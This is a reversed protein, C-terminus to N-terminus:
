KALLLLAGDRCRLKESVATSGDSGSVSSFRGVFFDRAIRSDISESPLAITVVFSVDEGEGGRGDCDAISGSAELGLTVGIAAGYPVALRDYLPRDWSELDHSNQHSRSARESSPFTASFSEWPEAAPAIPRRRVAEPRLTSPGSLEM